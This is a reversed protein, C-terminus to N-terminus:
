LRWRAREKAETALPLAMFLVYPLYSWWPAFGAINPYLRFQACATWACAAAVLAIAGGCALALADRRRFRYRAYTTRRPVAGWGRAKMADATELSDEMSWGMLVSTLRLNERVRLRRDGAGGGQAGAARAATCARQVDGIAGGRRVFQPVLRAAMSLMLGITPAAGGFLAMIKDSPLVRSANSFLTFVTVLMLGMCAGFAFSELYFVRSGLRFLETSGSASFLPNALAVVVALPLQWGLTRAAARMGRLVVGYALAGTFSILLFVPQMAAMGFALAAAFYCFAVVPHFVDFATLDLDTRTRRLGGTPAAEGASPGSTLTRM